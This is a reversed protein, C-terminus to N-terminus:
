PLWFRSLLLHYTKYFRGHQAQHHVEKIIQPALAQPICIRANKLELHENPLKERVLLGDQVELAPLIGAYQRAEVPLSLLEHREPTKNSNLWEKVLQITQDRNQEEKIVDKPTLEHELGSTSSPMTSPLNTPATPATSSNNISPVDNAITNNHQTNEPSTSTNLNIEHILIANEDDDFIEDEERGNHHESAGHRSLYDVDSHHKGSRHRVEFNFNAITNIWRNSINRPFQMTHISKLNKNDTFWVFPRGFLLFRHKNCAWIFNFLEGKNSDMRMQQKTLKKSDYVIVREIMQGTDLDMQYQTIKAALAKLSWDTYLFFPQDNKGWQPHALIPDRTIIAKLAEVAELCEKSQQIIKDTRHNAATTADIIPSAIEAYRPIFKRYYNMKGLFSRPQSLTKPPQIQRIASVYESSQRGLM